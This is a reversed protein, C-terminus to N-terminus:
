NDQQKKYNCIGPCTYRRDPAFPDIPKTCNRRWALWEQVEQETNVNFHRAVRSYNVGNKKCAKDIAKHHHVETREHSRLACGSCIILLLCIFWTKM